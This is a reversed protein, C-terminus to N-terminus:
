PLNNPKAAPVKVITIGQALRAGDESTWSLGFLAKRFLKGASSSQQCARVSPRPPGPVRVSPRPPGPVRVQTGLQAMGGTAYSQAVAARPILPQVVYAPFTQSLHHETHTATPFDVDRSPKSKAQLRTKPLLVWM